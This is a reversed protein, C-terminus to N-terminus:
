RSFPFAGAAHSPSARGEGAGASCALTVCLGEGGATGRLAGRGRQGRRTVEMAPGAPQLPPSIAAGCGSGPGSCGGRAAEAETM